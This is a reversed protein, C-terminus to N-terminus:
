FNILIVIMLQFNGKFDSDSWFGCDFDAPKFDSNVIRNPVRLRKLKIHMSLLYPQSPLCANFYGKKVFIDKKVLITM